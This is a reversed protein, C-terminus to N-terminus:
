QALTVAYRAAHGVRPRYLLWAVDRTPLAQERAVDLLDSCAVSAFTAFICLLKVTEERLLSMSNNHLAGSNLRQAHRKKSEEHLLNHQPSLSRELFTCGHGQEDDGVRLEHGSLVGPDLRDALLVVWVIRQNSRVKGQDKRDIAHGLTCHQGLDCGLGFMGAANGKGDATRRDDFIHKTGQSMHEENGINPITGEHLEVIGEVGPRQGGRETEIDGENRMDRNPGMRIGIDAFGQGIVDIVVIKMKPPLNTGKVDNRVLVGADSGYTGDGQPLCTARGVLRQLQCKHVHRFNVIVM